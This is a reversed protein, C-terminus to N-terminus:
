SKEMDHEKQLKAAIALNADKMTLRMNGTQPRLRKRSYKRKNLEKDRTARWMNLETEKVLSNAIIQKFTNIWDQFEEKRVPDSWQMNEAIKPGRHNELGHQIDTLEHTQRLLPLTLETLEVHKNFRKLQKICQKESISWM